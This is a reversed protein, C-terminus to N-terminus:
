KGCTDVAEDSKAGKKHYRAYLAEKAKVDLKTYKTYTLGQGLLWNRFQEKTGPKM